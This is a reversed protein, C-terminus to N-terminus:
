EKFFARFAFSQDIKVLKSEGLPRDSYQRVVEAPVGATIAQLPTSVGPKALDVGYLEGLKVAQEVPVTWVSRGQGRDMGYGFGREGRKYAAELEDELGKTRAKLIAAATELLALEAAAEHATLTVPTSQRSVQIVKQGSLRLAECKSRGPCDLCHEGVTAVPNAQLAANAANRLKAWYKSLDTGAPIEWVRFSGRRDYARPQAIALSFRVHSFDTWGRALLRDLIGRLYSLNQWNEAEPVFRHGYKFDLIAIHSPAIQTRDSTGFCIEHISPIPMRTETYVEHEETTPFESSFWGYTDSVKEVMEEDVLEGNPACDGVKPSRGSFLESLVWHAAEGVLTDPTDDQPYLRNMTPWM